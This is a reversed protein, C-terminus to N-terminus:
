GIAEIAYLLECESYLFECDAYLFECKAYLFGFVLDPAYCVTYKKMAGLVIEMLAVKAHVLGADDTDGKM